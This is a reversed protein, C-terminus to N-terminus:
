WEVQGAANRPFAADIHELLITITKSDRMDGRFVRTAMEWDGGVPHLRILQTWSGNRAAFFVNLRRPGDGLPLRPGM